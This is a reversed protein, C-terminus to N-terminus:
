RALIVFDAQPDKRVKELEEGSVIRVARVAGGKLRKKARDPIGFGKEVHGGGALIVVRRLNRGKLFKVASDAMYEDWITMVQYMREQQEKSVKAGGHMKALRPFHYDRHAKVLFDVEGIQKKEEATLKDYGEKSVRKRLEDAVNLGALPVRNRRCFDAIPRYLAWDYGWRKQYESDELFAEEGIAGTAYRDLAKQFPRQFMELGVGMKEDVAFLGKIVMLQIHHDAESDHAEGVCVIDAKTLDDIMEGFGVVKKQAASYVTVLPRGELRELMLAHEADGPANVEYVRKGRLLISRTAGAPSRYDRRDPKVTFKEAPSQAQRLETFSAFFRAAQENSAFAFTRGEAGGGKIARDGRWGDASKLAKAKTAPHSLFMEVLGYEGVTTGPGLKVPMIFQGPHLISATSMPPFAYRRDVAKWGGKDKIAKVWRTGQGYLFAFRLNKAKELDTKLMMAIHPQEKQLMEITVLQADGEVLAAFALEADSGFTEQHKKKLDFHQDQLAHVLEHILVGKGYGPKIDDYLVVEKKVLDYYANTSPREKGRPAVRVPVPKKFKLGRVKEIEAQLARVKKELEAADDARALLPLALLALLPFCRHM